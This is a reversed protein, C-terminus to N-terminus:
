SVTIGAAEFVTVIVALMKALGEASELCLAQMATPSRRCVAYGMSGKTCMGNSLPDFKVGDEGSTYQWKSTHEPPIFAPSILGKLVATM